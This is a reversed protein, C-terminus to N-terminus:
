GCADRMMVHVLRARPECVANMSSSYRKIGEEDSLIISQWLRAYNMRLDVPLDRYLGHDLLVLQPQGPSTPLPRVLLSCYSARRMDCGNNVPNTVIGASMEPM